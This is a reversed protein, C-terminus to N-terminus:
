GTGPAPAPPAEAPPLSIRFTTGVGVRTAVAMRGRHELVINRTIYLGLGTGKGEAKTTFFPDFIHDLTEPPIGSGTDRFLITAAREGALEGVQGLADGEPATPPQNPEALTTITLTGGGEMAHGANIMLNLFVQKLKEDDGLAWVGDPALDQVVTVKGRRLEYEVLALTEVMVRNLDVPKMEAQKPRAFSLINQSLRLIRQAEQDIIALYKRTRPDLDKQGLVMGSLMMISTLPNKIEHVIGSGLRGLEAMKESTILMEVMKKKETLDQAICSIGAPLNRSDRIPSFTLNLPFVTGDVRRGRAELSVAEGGEAVGALAERIREEEGAAALGEWSGGVAERFDRGFVRAAGGNWTVIRGERDFSIIAETSSEVMDNMYKLYELYQMKERRNQIYQTTTMALYTAGIVGLPAMLDIWVNGRTFRVQSFYIYGGFFLGACALSYLPRLVYFLFGCVGGVVVISLLRGAFSQRRIFDGRLLSDYINGLVCLMPYAKDLPTPRLDTNGTFTVGVLVVKGRFEELNLRARQPYRDAQLVELFSYSRFSDIGGAYNVLTQGEEDLPVTLGPRDRRPIVIGRGPELSVQEPPVGMAELAALFAVSPYYGDSYRVLLPVRRTIGDEDPIANCHGIGRAVRALTDIPETLNLGSPPWGPKPDRTLENFYSSLYVNGAAKVALNMLSPNGIEPEEAFLMDMIVAKAGHRKMVELFMAHYDWAWPWRGIGRISDDGIFVVALSSDVQRPPRQQFRMDLTRWEFVTFVNGYTLLFFVL